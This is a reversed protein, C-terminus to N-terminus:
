SQKAAEESRKQELILELKKHEKAIAERGAEALDEAFKRIDFNPDALNM